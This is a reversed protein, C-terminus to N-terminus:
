AGNSDRWFCFTASSPETNIWDTRVYNPNLPDKFLYMSYNTTSFFGNAEYYSKSGIAHNLKLSYNTNKNSYNYTGDPNYKYRHVYSKWNNETFLLQGSLKLRPTLRFTLKGLSNLNRSPNMSVFKGDGGKEIYWDGSAPFDAFDKPTHERIGYLYGDNDSLRGSINFTLRDGGSIIPVPGSLSGEMIMNATLNVNDINTYLDTDSSLYDGSYVSFSGEYNKGGEKIQLNVIGSMANGYEANFGGSVVKMEELAKNSVNIALSNTFFPNSVAVGDIYYGIENARGGRIHLAGDAGQNVGAQTTLVGLFSEVPMGKIEAGTTIKQSSTLDKQIMPRDALVVVEQGELVEHTLMINQITTQDINVRLGKIKQTAYGIFSIQLSYDGPSINIIVSIGM